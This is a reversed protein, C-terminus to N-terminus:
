VPLGARYAMGRIDRGLEDDKSHAVLEALTDRIFPNRLTLTKHLREARLLARAADDRHVRTLARGYDLWYTARVSPYAHRRPDVTRAVRIAEDSDGSELAAAMRAVGVSVPGFGMVFADGEGTREALEAAYRLAAASEAPQSDAAAVLSRELALKGSLQMGASSGTPVEVASLEDRALDFRGSDMLVSAADRAVLGLMTPDGLEEALTRALVADQGRLDLPAGSVYLFRGNSVGHLMIALPLLEPMHQRQALTTHMDAILSPLMARYVEFDGTNMVQFRERLQEVPQVEGDLRGFSVALLAHRIADIATDTHGNAPAPVPLKTLDSPAVRLAKALAVILQHSDLALLGNEIRSLTPASTGALGAVVALSLRRSKRISRLRQGITRDDHSGKGAGTDDDM